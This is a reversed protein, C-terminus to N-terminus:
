LRDIADSSGVPERVQEIYRWVDPRSGDLGAAPDQEWVPTNRDAPGGVLLEGGRVDNVLLDIRGHGSRVQEALRAVRDPELPDVAVAVGTGGLRTVLDATEEITATRDYESRRTRTSRGTSVVTASAEGLAAAIGRGAGRTAGAVVAVRDLLAGGIRRGLWPRVTERGTVVM